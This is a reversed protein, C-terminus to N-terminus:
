LFFLQVTYPLGSSPMSYQHCGPHTQSSSAPGPQAWHSTVWSKFSPWSAIEVTSQRERLRTSATLAPTHKHGGGGDWWGLVRRDQRCAGCINGTLGSWHQGHGIRCHGHPCGCVCAPGAQGQINVPAQRMLHRALLYAGTQRGPTHWPSRVQPSHLKSCIQLM